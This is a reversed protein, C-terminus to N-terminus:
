GHWKCGNFFCEVENSLPLHNDKDIIFISLVFPIQGDRRFLYRGLDDIEHRFVAPPEDAEGQRFFLHFLQLKGHHGLVVFGAKLRSEGDGNLRPLSDRRSDRGIIAGVRNERGDSVIGCRLVQYCRPVDKGELGPLSPHQDPGTLCLSRHVQRPKGTQLGGGHDTLDHLVVPGHGPHRVQFFKGFLVVELDDLDSIDDTVAHSDFGEHM